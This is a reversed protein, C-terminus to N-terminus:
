KNAATAKSFYLQIQSKINGALHGKLLSLFPTPSTQTKFQGSKLYSMFIEVTTTDKPFFNLSRGIESSVHADSGVTGPLNLSVNLLQAKQNAPQPISSNFIEVADFPCSKIKSGPSLIMYPHAAVALGNQNHIQSITETLSLHPKIEHDIGYALVHGELTSIESAPILLIPYGHTSIIQQANKFGDLSDHDTIALIKISKKLCQDIIESESQVSDYLFPAYFLRQRRNAHCHIEAPLTYEM